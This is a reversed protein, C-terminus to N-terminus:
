LFSLLWFSHLQCFPDWSGTPQLFPSLQKSTESNFTTVPPGTPCLPVGLWRLQLAASGLMYVSVCMYVCVPLCGWMCVCGCVCVCIYLCVSVCVCLCVCLWDCISLCVSLLGSVSVGVCVCVCGFVSPCNLFKVLPCLVAAFDLFYYWCGHHSLQRFICYGM